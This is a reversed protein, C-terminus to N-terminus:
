NGRDEGTPPFICILLQEWWYEFITQQISESTACLRRSIRSSFEPGTGEETRQAICDQIQQQSSGAQRPPIIHLDPCLSFTPAPQTRFSFGRQGAMWVRSYEREPSTGATTGPFDTAGWTSTSAPEPM